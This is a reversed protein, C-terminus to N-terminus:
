LDIDGRGHGRTPRQRRGRRFPGLPRLASILAHAQAVEAATLTALDAHRLVEVDSFRLTLDDASPRPPPEGGDQDLAGPADHHLTVRLPPPDPARAAQARGPGGFVTTFARDYADFDAPHHILSARGAVYLRAPEDLGVAAIAQTCILESTIAVEVGEARLAASLMATLVAGDPLPPGLDIDPERM